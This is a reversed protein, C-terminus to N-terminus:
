AVRIIERRVNQPRHGAAGARSIALLQPHQLGDLTAGEAVWRVQNPSLHGWSMLSLLRAATASGPAILPRAAEEQQRVGGIQLLRQRLAEDDAVSM